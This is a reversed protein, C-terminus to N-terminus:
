TEGKGPEVRGAGAAERWSVCARPEQDDQYGMSNPSSARWRVLKVKRAVQQLVPLDRTKVVMDGWSSFVCLFVSTRVVGSSAM